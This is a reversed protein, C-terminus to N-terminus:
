NFVLRPSQCCGPGTEIELKAPSRQVEEETSALRVVLYMVPVDATMWQPLAAGGVLGM